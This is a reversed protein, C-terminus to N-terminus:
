RDTQGAPQASCSDAGLVASVRAVDHPECGVGRWRSCATSARDRSFPPPTSPAMGGVSARSRREIRRSTRRRQVLASLRSPRVGARQRLGEAPWPDLRQERWTASASQRDLLAPSPSPIRLSLLMPRAFWAVSGRSARCTCCTGPIRELSRQTPVRQLRTGLSAGSNRDPPRPTRRAPKRSVRRPRCRRSRRRDDCVCPADQLCRGRSRRAPSM